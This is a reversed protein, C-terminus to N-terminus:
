QSIVEYSVDRITVSSAVSCNLYVSLFNSTTTSITIPGASGRVQIIANTFGTTGTVGNLVQVHSMATTTSMVIFNAVLIASGLAASGTGLITNGVQDADANTNATGYKLTVTPIQLTAVNTLGVTIRLHSGARLTGAPLSWGSGCRTVTAAAVLAAPQESKPTVALGANGSAQLIRNIYSGGDTIAATTNGSLDNFSVNSMGYTFSGANIFIGTGNAAFNETPGITNGQFNFNTVGNASYPTINIGNTFGSIRCDKVDIGRVGTVLLGNTTGTFGNNYFDCLLFDIAEPIGTGSGTGAIELASLGAAGTTIGCQMFKVRSTAFTGMFKVTSGLTAQDFFVNTFFLAAVAATANVLLTNKGGIFNCTSVQVTGSQNVMLGTTSVGTVNITCNQIMMDISSGNIKIQAGDTNSGATTSPTGFLCENITGFDGSTAGVLEIGNFQNLFECRRVDLYANAASSRIAAGATKTVNSAFGLEEFSIYSATVTQNFLNATTSTNRLMSRGKGDGLVRLKIDRNLTLEANFDFIGQGPIKLTCFSPATTYWANFATVNQAGTNSTLIGINNADIWTNDVKLKDAASMYGDVSTTANAFSTWATDYNTASNKKLYQGTTGAVPLGPQSLWTTGDSVLANGAIGPTIMQVASTTNGLLVANTTLTIHGSGGQNVPLASALHTAVVYPVVSTNALDGALQVLGPQGTTALNTNASGTYPNTAAIVLKGDSALSQQLYDNLVTGWAGDDGNVVPLRAVM